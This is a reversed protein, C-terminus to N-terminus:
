GRWHVLNAQVHDVAGTPSRWPMPAGDVAYTVGDATVLDGDRVDAGPPAYLTADYTVPMRADSWSTATSSPQVSCGGVTHDTGQSWDPVTTGRESVQKPRTVTVTTACWSPLM